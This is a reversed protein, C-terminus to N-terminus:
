RQSLTSPQQVNQLSEDNKGTELWSCRSFDDLSSEVTDARERKYACYSLFWQFPEWQLYLNLVTFTQSALCHRPQDAASWVCGAKHQAATACCYGELVYV